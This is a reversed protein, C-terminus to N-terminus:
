KKRKQGPSNTRVEMKFFKPHSQKIVLKKIKHYNKQNTSSKQYGQPVSSRDLHGTLYKATRWYKNKILNEHLELNCFEVIIGQRAGDFYRFLQYRSVGSNIGWSPILQYRSVGSIRRWRRQGSLISVKVGTFNEAQPTQSFISVKIGGFPYWPQTEYSVWTMTSNLNAIQFNM